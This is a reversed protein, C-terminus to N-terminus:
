KKSVPSFDDSSYSPLNGPEYHKIIFPHREKSFFMSKNSSTAQLATSSVSSTNKADLPVELWNPPNCIARYEFLKERIKKHEIKSVLYDCFRYSEFLGSHALKVKELLELNGPSLLTILKGPSIARRLKGDTYFRIKKLYDFNIRYGGYFNFEATDSINKGLEQLFKILAENTLTSIKAYTQKIFANASRNQDNKSCLNDLFRFFNLTLIQHIKSVDYAILLPSALECSYYQSDTLSKIFFPTFNTSNLRGTHCFSISSEGLKVTRMEDLDFGFDRQKYFAGRNHAVGEQALFKDFDIVLEVSKGRLYIPQVKNIAFFITNSDGGVHDIFDATARFPLYNQQLNRRGYLEDLASGLTETATCHRIESFLKVKESAKLIRAALEPSCEKPIYPRNADHLIASSKKLAAKADTKYEASMRAIRRQEQSQRIKHRTYRQIGVIKEEVSENNRKLFSSVTLRASQESEEIVRPIKGPLFSSLKPQPLYKKFLNVLTQDECLYVSRVLVGDQLSEPMLKAGASEGEGKLKKLKEEIQKYIKERESYNQKVYNEVLMRLTAAKYPLGIYHKIYMYSKNSSINEIAGIFETTFEGVPDRQISKWLKEIQLMDVDDDSLRRNGYKKIKHILELEIERM